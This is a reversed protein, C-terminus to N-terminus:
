KGKLLDIEAKLEKIANILYWTLNDPDVSLVGTSEQKVCEPLVEQLEQAIVGLQVGSKQVADHPKLGEDVEEPLRYEFNRVRIANIKDLGDNNDVINKKLRYDSITQWSSTNLGNYLNGGTTILGTGDGKGTVNNGNTNVVMEGNVGANNPTITRGIYICDVGSTKTNNATQYGIYINYSGSVVNSGAQHGIAVNGSGTTNASLTGGGLAINNTGSTTAVGSNAGVFTNYQNLASGLTSAYGAKYSRFLM